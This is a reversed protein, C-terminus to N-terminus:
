DTDAVGWGGEEVLYHEIDSGHAAVRDLELAFHLVDSLV